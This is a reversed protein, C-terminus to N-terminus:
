RQLTNVKKNLKDVDSKSALGLLDLLQEHAASARKDLEGRLETAKAFAGSARARKDLKRWEIDLKKRVEVLQKRAGAFKGELQAQVREGIAAFEVAGNKKKSTKETKDTM